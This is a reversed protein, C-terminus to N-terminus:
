CSYIVPKKVVKKTKAITKKKVKQQEQKHRLDNDEEAMYQKLLGANHLREIFDVTKNYKQAIDAFNAM